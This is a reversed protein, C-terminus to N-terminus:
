RSLERDLCHAASILALHTFAQPFNGLQEGTAGTEEAFLGLHNAYGLMKEFLFRAKEVHGARALCEIYWFSCMNFTGELGDLGDSGAGEAELSYRYVLSDDTLEEGIADLTALWRPDKPGIFKVLPMLLCSADLPPVADDDPDIASQVFAGRSESWFRTHIDDHIEDRVVRWRERPAPLSRKDSLRLGRDFAVWCMLRSYLLERRGSRVEWIGEDPEHWHDELWALSRRVGQWSEHSIQTGYKDALYIADMLEGYIDLQLQDSAGNGIRVPRSERHGALHDLSIEELEEHGDLGYMVRLEGNKATSRAREALWGMFADAEAVHGIRIFGYVTFAADRIWTFRYDWNREGGIEEPLGFTAAAVMSGHEASTLLKLALASRTVTDHWRGAYGGRAVWDRWYDSTAKFAEAVCDATCADEAESLVFWRSEGPALEFTAIVAAGDGDIELDSDSTLRLGTADDGRSRMVIAGDRVDMTSGARAYDFAPECRMRFGITGRVAKARRVLRQRGDATDLAMFDSVEAVGEETMFRTLLVNTDPLYLQRHRVGDLEPSLVFAGGEREDLIAAFVSPSDFRPWCMFDITGDLGVLACTSLDGVIGHDEIPLQM